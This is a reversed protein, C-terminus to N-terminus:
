RSARAFLGSGRWEAPMGAVRWPLGSHPLGEEEASAHPDPPVFVLAFGDQVDERMRRALVHNRVVTWVFWGGALIGQAMLIYASLPRPGQSTSWSWVCVLCWLAGFLEVGPLREVRAIAVAIEEQEEPSLHRRELRAGEPLGESPHQVRLGIIPGPAVERIPAPDGIDRLPGTLIRRSPHRVEVVGEVDTTSDTPVPAFREVRDERLDRAADALENQLDRTILIAVPLLLLGGVIMLFM